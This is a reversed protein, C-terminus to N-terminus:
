KQEGRKAAIEKAADLASKRKSQKPAQNKQADIFAQKSEDFDAASELADGSKQKELAAEVKAEISLKRNAAVNEEYVNGSPGGSQSTGEAMQHERRDSM